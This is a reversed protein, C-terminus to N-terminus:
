SNEKNTFTYELLTDSLIDEVVQRADEGCHASVIITGTVDYEWERAQPTLTALVDCVPCYDDNPINKEGCIPCDWTRDPLDM